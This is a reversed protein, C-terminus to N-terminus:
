RGLRASLRPLSRRIAEPDTLQSGAPSEFPELVPFTEDDPGHRDLHVLGASAGFFEGGAECGEPLGAVDGLNDPDDVVRTFTEHGQAIIWSRWDTFVDDSAYGCIMEAANWHQWTYLRTSAAIFQTQFRRLTQDDADTLRSQLVEGMLEPDGDGRTRADEITEWFTVEGASKPAKPM